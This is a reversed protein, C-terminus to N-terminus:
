NPTPTIQIEASDVKLEARPGGTADGSVEVKGAIILHYALGPELTIDFSPSQSGSWRDPFRDADGDALMVMALLRHNSDKIYAKLGIPQAAGSPPHESLMCQYNIKFTVAANVTDDGDYTLVHGIQFEARATGGATADASCSAQGTANAHSDAHAAGESHRQTDAVNFPRDSPLSLVGGTAFAAQSRALETQPLSVSEGFHDGDGCGLLCATLICSIYRTTSGLATRPDM